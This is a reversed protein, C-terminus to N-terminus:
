RHRYSRAAPAGDTAFGSAFVQGTEESMVDQEAVIAARLESEETSVEHFEDATPKIQFWAAYLAPFFLPILVMGVATGGILTYAM